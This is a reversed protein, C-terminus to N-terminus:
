GIVIGIALMLIPLIFVMYKKRSEIKKNLIILRIGFLIILISCILTGNITLIIAIKDKLNEEKSVLGVTGTNSGILAFISIFVGMIEIIKTKLNESENTAKKIKKDLKKSKDIVDNIRTNLEEKTSNIYENYEDMKNKNEVSISTIKNFIDSISVIKRNLSEDIGKETLSYFLKEGTKMDSYSTIWVNSVLEDFKNEIDNEELNTYIPKLRKMVYEIVEHKTSWRTNMYFLKEIIFKEIIDM